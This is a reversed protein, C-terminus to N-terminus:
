DSSTEPRSISCTCKPTTTRNSYAASMDTRRCATFASGSATPRCRSTASATPAITPSVGSRGRRSTSRGCARSLRPPIARSSPLSSKRACANTPSRHQRTHRLVAAHRRAVMAVRRSRHCPADMTRGEAHGVDVPRRDRACLDAGRRSPRLFLRDVERGQQVLLERRRGARRHRAQSRRRRTAHRVASQTCSRRCRGARRWARGCRRRGGSPTDRDSLFAIFSGDRSWHPSTENKDKTFTLQRTHAAGGDMSVLYIDSQRRAQAWDPTSLAYLMSRSDPSIALGSVQKMNQADLFTMPRQSQAGLSAAAIAVVFFSTRVM